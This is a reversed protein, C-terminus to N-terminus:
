EHTLADYIGKNYLVNQEKSFTYLKKDFTLMFTNMENFSNSTENKFYDKALCTLISFDLGDNKRLKAKDEVSRLCIYKFFKVCDEFEGHNILQVGVDNLNDEFDKYINPRQKKLKKFLEYLYNTGSEESDTPPLNISDSDTFPKLCRCYEVGEKINEALIREIEKDYDKNDAEKPTSYYDQATKLLEDHMKTHVKDYYARGLDVQAYDVIIAMASCYLIFLLRHICEIEFNMKQRVLETVDVKGNKYQDQFQELNFMCNIDNLVTFPVGYRRKFGAIMNYTDFLYDKDEYELSQWLLEFLSQGTVYLNEANKCFEFFVSDKVRKGEVHINNEKGMEINRLYVVANTDLIINSGM